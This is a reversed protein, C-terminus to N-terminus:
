NPVHVDLRTEVLQTYASSVSFSNAASWKWVCVDHGAAQNPSPIGLVHSIGTLPLAQLKAVDWQDDDRLFSQKSYLWITEKELPRKIM